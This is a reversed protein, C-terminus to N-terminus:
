VEADGMDEEDDDHQQMRIAAVPLRSAAQRCGGAMLTPCAAPAASWAFATPALLAALLTLRM